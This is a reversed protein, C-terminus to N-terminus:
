RLRNVWPLLPLYYETFDREADDLFQCEDSILGLKSWALHRENIYNWEEFETPGVYKGQGDYYLCMWYFVWSVSALDHMFSHEVGHLAGIAMFARTETKRKARSTGTRTEEIALDLDILFGRQLPAEEEENIMLNDISVDRHLLGVKLRLSEHGIICAKLGVLLARPSSAEYIRKGYSQFILRRYIRNGM